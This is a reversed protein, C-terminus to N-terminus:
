VHELSLHKTSCSHSTVTHSCTQAVRTRSFRRCSCMLPYEHCFKLSIRRFFLSFGTRLSAEDGKSYKTHIYYKEPISHVTLNALMNWPMHSEDQKESLRM